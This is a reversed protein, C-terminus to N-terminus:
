STTESISIYKKLKEYTELSLAHEARCADAEAVESSVGLTTEFFKRYFRHREYVGNALKNGSETLCINGDHSVTLLGSEVLKGVARSVSPKSYGKLEAIDVARVFGKKEMLILIAELYDEGSEYVKRDV